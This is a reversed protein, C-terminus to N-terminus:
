EDLGGYVFGTTNIKDVRVREYDPSCIKWEGDPSYMCTSVGDDSVMARYTWDEYGNLFGEESTKKQINGNYLVYGLTIISIILATISLTLVVKM